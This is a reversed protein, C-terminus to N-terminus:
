GRAAGLCAARHLSRTAQGAGDGAKGIRGAIRLRHVREIMEAAFALPDHRSDAPEKAM